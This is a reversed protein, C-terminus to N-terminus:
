DLQIPYSGYRLWADRMAVYNKFPVYDPISNASGLCYGGGPALDRIRIRVEEDVEEPTGRTLTYGLDINGILCLKGQVKAKTEVIDMAKPELPHLGDFGLDVIDGLIADLKGDSHYIAPVGRDHALKVMRRFWPFAYRRLVQPSVMLSTGFAVDDSHFYAGVCRHELARELLRYQIGGVREFMREVLGPNDALALCFTEFGMLWWVPNFVKGIVCVAKMYGPLIRDAEDFASFDFDDPEPWVFAEFDAESTICGVGTAAWRREVTEDPHSLADDQSVRYSIGQMADQVAPMMQLGQSLCVFDYGAQHAFEIEDSLTRVPRGIMRAKHGQYILVDVFPVHDPEGQCRVASLFREFNPKL